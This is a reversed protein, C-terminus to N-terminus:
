TAATTRSLWTACAKKAHRGRGMFIPVGRAKLEALTQDLDDVVVGIKFIGQLLVPDTVAPAAKSLPVSDSHEILEVILGGGALVAVVLKTKGRPEQVVVKLGLKESYWKVSADLDAVSLAFFAGKAAIEAPAFVAQPSQGRVFASLSVYLVFCAIKV